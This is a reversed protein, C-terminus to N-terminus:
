FVMDDGARRGLAGDVTQHSQAPLTGVWEGTYCFLIAGCSDGVFIGATWGGGPDGRQGVGDDVGGASGFARIGM